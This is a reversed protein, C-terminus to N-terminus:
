ILNELAEKMIDYDPNEPQDTFIAKIVGEQCFYVRPVRTQAFLEYVKRDTQASYPMTLDNDEWFTSINSQTDERSILAFRVGKVAYEDYLRQIHPLVERCDPCQTTFFVIVSVGERLSAGTVANGDNMIVNFDPVYDGVGLDTGKQGEKICSVLAFSLLLIHLVRRM